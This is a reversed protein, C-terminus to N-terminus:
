NNNNETNKKLAINYAKIYNKVLSKWDYKLATIKAFERQLIQSKKNRNLQDYLLQYLKEIQREQSEQSRKLTMVSPNFDGYSKEIHKGFGSLDSTITPVAYSISELPTYGWPEYYSTFVGLDFGTVFEYYEQNIVGDKGDLYRPVLINFVKDNISNNLEKNKLETLITHDPIMHTKLSIENCKLEKFEGVPVLFFNILKLKSDEKILTKNLKSLAEIYIDFGKNVFENRGSTYFLKTSDVDLDPIKSFINRILKNTQKRSKYFKANLIELDEIGTNDFGNYLLVDAAKSYFFSAEKNTIDSVTTFCDSHNAAAKETQHKTSVGMDYALKNPDKSQIETQLDTHKESLCRGLMTAHTTFITKFKIKDSHTQIYFIAGTSMWEHAHVLIKNKDNLSLEEIVIGCTWSWLIAEDFDYWNSNLSDIQYKDWLTGKIENIHEGYNLYEVLITKVKTQKSEGYHIKIGKSELVKQAQEMNKPLKLETFYNKSNDVFPGVQYYKKFKNKIQKSKSNIVTFIGGVKNCIEWSIEYLTSNEDM